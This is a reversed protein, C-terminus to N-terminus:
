AVKAEYALITDKMQREFERNKYQIDNELKARYWREEELKAEYTM